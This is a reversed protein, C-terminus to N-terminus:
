GVEGLYNILADYFAKTTKEDAFNFVALSGNETRVKIVSDAGTNYYLRYEGDSNKWTGAMRSRGVTGDVMEGPEFSEAYELGAIELLFISDSDLVEGKGFQSKTHSLRLTGGEIAVNISESPLFFDFVVMVVALTLLLMLTPKLAGRLSGRDEM